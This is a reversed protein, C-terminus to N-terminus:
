SAYGRAIAYNILDATRKLHLKGMIRMRHYGVARRDVRLKEAIGRNTEGKALLRLVEIEQSSLQECDPMQKKAIFLSLWSDRFEKALLPSVYAKTQLVTDLAVFLEKALEEKLLYGDAGALFAQCLFDEERHMSLVLVRVELNLRRIERIAEIGRLKPMSMDVIAVDPVHGEKLMTLLELGNAAEGIVEYGSSEALMMKLAGRLLAHDDAVVIKASTM